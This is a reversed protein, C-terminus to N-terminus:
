NGDGKHLADMIACAKADGGACQEAMAALSKELRRLDRIKDRVDQLHRETMALINGCTYDQSQALGALSRVEDIPFGLERARLVFGLRTQDAKTYLRHGSPTRDPARLLGISEYYRITEISCGYRKAMAGRKLGRDAAVVAM